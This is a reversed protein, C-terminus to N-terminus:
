SFGKMAGNGATRIVATLTTGILTVSGPVFCGTATATKCTNKKVTINLDPTTSGEPFHLIGLKSANFNSPVQWTITWTVTADTDIAIDAVSLEGFCGLAFACFDNSADKVDAVHIASVITGLVLVSTIQPNDSSLPCTTGVPDTHGPPLFTQVDDCTAEGVDVTGTVDRIQPNGGNPNGSENFTVVAAIGHPGSTPTSLLLTFARSAGAKLNGFDCVINGNTAPCSAANNGLVTDSISVDGPPDGQFQTQDITIVVHTLTQNDVNRVYVASATLGGATVPTFALTGPGDLGGVPQVKDLARSDPGVYIFRTEAATATGVFAQSVLLSTIAVSTGWRGM